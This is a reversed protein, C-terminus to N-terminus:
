EKKRSQALVDAERRAADSPEPTRKAPEQRDTDKKGGM